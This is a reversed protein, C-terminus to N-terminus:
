PNDKSKSKDRKNHKKFPLIPLIPLLTNKIGEARAIDLYRM